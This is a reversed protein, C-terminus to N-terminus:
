PGFIFLTLIHYHLQNSAWRQTVILDKWGWGRINGNIQTHGAIQNIGLKPVFLTSRMMIMYM